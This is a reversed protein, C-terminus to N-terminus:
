FRGPEVIQQMGSRCVFRGDNRQRLENVWDREFVRMSSGPHGKSVRNEIDYVFNLVAVYASVLAQVFNM